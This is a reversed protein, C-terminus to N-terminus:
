SGPADQWARPAFAISQTLIEETDQQTARDFHLRFVTARYLHGGPVECREMRTQSDEELTIWQM